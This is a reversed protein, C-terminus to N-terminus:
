CANELTVALTEFAGFGAMSVHPLLDRTSEEVAM